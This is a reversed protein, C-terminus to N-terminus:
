SAALEDLWARVQADSPMRWDSRPSLAVMGVKPGDPTCSRKFQNAFFRTVFLELYGRLVARDYRQAFAVEALALIRSPKRGHRLMHFLFFDHLEYPGLASETLQAIKGTEDPPLLEPSIPTELIAFLVERLAASDGRVWSALRENAVWRILFQILTKPVGANVDYMSIQDGAYTSWGLAKESLDGTGLVLGGQQNAVSMLLLTRMRAQVNEFSVDALSREARVRALLEAVSAAGAPHDLEALVARSLESVPSRQFTASLAHALREANAQTDASSGFGPMSVCLLESRPRGLLELASVAVLAAHTSDLGGSLGLVIKGSAGVRELRTALASTQIDFVEACRAALTSPEKPVFPHPAISRALSAPWRTSFAVSRFPKSLHGACDGFTTTVARENLLQDLDVDAAVLQPHRAFRQSEALLHGNEYILAHADYVMDTSSESPGAAVYAYACKGRDSASACLLKRLDAKGVTINSASLNCILTAGASVQASSPPVQVWLDECIEVGVVLEPADAAAFLLDTGFPVDSGLVRLMSNAPVESGPRFWRREEFERYNPLYSKPVVGLVRGQQVAVAVNYIGVGARLPMGVFALGAFGASQRVLQELAGLSGDLLVGSGFLDRATYSSLGLEPFVLVQAGQAEAKQWLELTQQLNHEIGVVSVRPVAAVVRVFGRM